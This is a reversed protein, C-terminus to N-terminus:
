QHRPRDNNHCSLRYSITDYEDVVVVGNVESELQETVNKQELVLFHLTAILVFLKLMQHRKTWNTPITASRLDIFRWTSPSIISTETLTITNQIVQIGYTKCKQITHYSASKY